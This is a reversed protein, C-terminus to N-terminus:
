EEGALKLLYQALMLSRQLLGPRSVCEQPTYMDRGVPGMGCIVAKGKPALGAVSPWLSSEEDFPLEWDAAVAAVQAALKKVAKSEPMPPRDSLQELEWQPGARGLIDRMRQETRTAAEPDPYSLWVEVRVRHPLLMPHGTAEISTASVAIREKRSSLAAMAALKEWTWRLPEPKSKPQGLRVAPGEVSLRFRRLGRRRTMAEGATAAPKLVLVQKARSMAKAIMASSYRCDRGEDAYCLVGLPAKRLKRAARLARLAFEMSALPGHVCAAGEGFLWQPERHFAHAPANYEAPVDLQCVLLVGDDLGPNSGWAWCVRDDTLDDIPKLGIEALRKGTEKALELTGVPDSTRCSRRVGESVRKEIQDRRQTLYELVAQAPTSSAAGATPEIPTGFYRAAALEVLRIVLAPYDLGVHAAGEVFSGHEGLSPLSNLELIYPNDDADLRFDVRACDFCGLANYADVALRQVRHTLEDSIPAPCIPTIERGSKRTKDEYTYVKPGGEGFSIEVPPLAEAPSNGMVGVNIERGDIYKEVLVAQGFNDFIVKAAERLDAENDVIRLGFSVAENRPKVILPYEIEPLPGDPTELLAFPPTPLGRQVFIMKAVVKDLALSHALPGSGVYPVGVMELIGPVHAYRAQGQLGYSVNFVMGPREGKVVRPMFQELNYILDKDGEFTAVRHGGGKLADSIRKITKLGITERNPRGFLNIVSKSERNYVVAIKM